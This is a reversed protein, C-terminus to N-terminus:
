IFNRGPLASRKGFVLSVTLLLRHMTSFRDLSRYRMGRANKLLHAEDVVMYNYKFRSLFYRDDSKEQQFYTVPALIVDLTAGNPKRGGPLFRKLKAQIEIREKMSGHYKVINLQPAFKQFELEWNSVVSAPAIVLHPHSPEFDQDVEVVSDDEDSDKLEMADDKTGSAKPKEDDKIHKM